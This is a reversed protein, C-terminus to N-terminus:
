IITSSRTYASLFNLFLLNYMMIHGLLPAIIKTFYFFPVHPTLFALLRHYDPRNRLLPSFEPEKFWGQM